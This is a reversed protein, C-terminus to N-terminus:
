KKTNEEGDVIKKEELRRNERITQEKQKIKELMRCLVFDDKHWMRIHYESSQTKIEKFEENSQFLEDLEETTFPNKERYHYTLENLGVLKNYNVIKQERDKFTCRRISTEDNCYECKSCHNECIPEEPFLPCRVWSKQQFVTKGCIPCTQLKPKNEEQM